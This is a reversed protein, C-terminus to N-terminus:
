IREYYGLYTRAMKESSFRSETRSRVTKADLNLASQIARPLEGPNECLFGTVQNEIIEGTAGKNIAVVPTGCAMAELLVMGFPEEWRLPLLLVSADELLQNRLSQEVEGLWTDNQGLLPQVREAFFRQEEPEACKAAIVLPIGAARAAHIALDPGKDPNMRGLFLAFEEKRAPVKFAGFDLGHYAVGLWPLNSNLQRQRESIAILPKDATLSLFEGENDTVAGHVTTLTPHPDTFLVGSLTHDHVVDVDLDRLLAQAKARHLMEPLAQGIRESAPQDLTQHGMARTRQEGASILHVEHGLDILSNTLASIVQEIGGYGVPPVHYWGPAVQAIKM